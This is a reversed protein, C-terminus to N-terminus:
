PLTQLQQLARPPRYYCMRKGQGGEKEILEDGDMWEAVAITPHTPEEEGPAEHM